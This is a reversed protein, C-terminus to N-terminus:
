TSIKSADDFITADLKHCQMCPKLIQSAFSAQALQQALRLTSEKRLTGFFLATTTGNAVLRRILAANQEETIASRKPDRKDDQQSERSCLQGITIPMDLM